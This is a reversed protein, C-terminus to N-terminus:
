TVGKPKRRFLIIAAVIGLGLVVVVFLHYRSNPEVTMYGIMYPHFEGCTESCRFTFRGTKDARFTAKGVKGPRAKLDIEYGDLYLGHTVDLSELRLTVLEGKQLTIESPMYVFRKALINIIKPEEAEAQIASEPEATQMVASNIITRLIASSLNGSLGIPGTTAAMPQAPKKPQIDLIVWESMSKRSGRDKQNGDWVALSIYQKGPALQIDRQSDATSLKRKIVVRWNGDRWQGRGSVTNNEKITVSGPRVAILDQCAATVETASNPLDAKQPYTYFKNASSVEPIEPQGWFEADLNAKWQWINIPSQFGMMISSSPAEGVLSFAVAAADAFKAMGHVYSTTDDQWELLFYADRGNHFARVLITPILNRGWPATTIQHLLRVNLAPLERWLGADFQYNELALEEDLYPMTLVLPEQVTTDMEGGWRHTWGYHVLFVFFALAVASILIVVPKKM